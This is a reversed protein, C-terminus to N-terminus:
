FVVLARIQHVSDASGATLLDTFRLDLLMSTTNSALRYVYLAENTVFLMDDRGPIQVADNILGPGNIVNTDPPLTGLLTCGAQDLNLTSCRILHKVQQGFRRTPFIYLSGNSHRVFASAASAQTNMRADFASMDFRGVVVWGSLERLLRVVDGDSDTNADLDTFYLENNSPAYCNSLTGGSVTTQAISGVRTVGATSVAFEAIAAGPAGDFEGAVVNGGPLTCLGHLSNVVQNDPIGAPSNFAVAGLLARGDASIRQATTTSGGALMTGDGLRTLSRVNTDAIDLLRVPPGDVRAALPSAALALRRVYSAKLGEIAIVVAHTPGSPFDVTSDQLSIDGDRTSDRPATDNIGDGPQADRASDPIDPSGDGTSGSLAAYFGGRTCGSLSFAAAILGVVVVRRDM